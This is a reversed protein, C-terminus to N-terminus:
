GPALGLQAFQRRLYEISSAAIVDAGPSFDFVEVSLWDRYGIEHLTKVIEEYGVKGMGPGLRNPDNAHVHILHRASSRIISAISHKETAMAKVDLHLKVHPSGVIEIFECTQEATNWFNTESPGLPELALRVQCKELTPLALEIVELARENAIEHSENSSFSRQQPSGFVLVDGGLERCLLALDALYRATQKRIEADAATLHYGVTKALLWHLGIIELGNDAAAQKWDKITASSLKTPSRGLTFPAVEIGAYGMRAVQQCVESWAVNEFMENCIAIKM